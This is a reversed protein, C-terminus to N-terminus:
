RGEEVIVPRDEECGSGPFFYIGGTKFAADDPLDLVKFEDGREYYDFSAKEGNVFYMKCYDYDFAVKVGEKQMNQWAIIMAAVAERQKDTLLAFINTGQRVQKKGENDTYEYDHYRIAIAVSAFYEDLHTTNYGFTINERNDIEIYAVPADVEVPVNKKFTVSTLSFEDTDPRICVHEQHLFMSGKIEVLREVMPDCGREYDARSYYLDFEQGALRLEDEGNKFIYTVLSGKNENIPVLTKVGTVEYLQNDRRNLLFKGNNIDKVKITRSITKM